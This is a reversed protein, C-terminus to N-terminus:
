AFVFFIGPKKNKNILKKRKNAMKTITFCMWIYKTNWNIKHESWKVASEGWVCLLRTWMFTHWQQTRRRCWRIGGGFKTQSGFHRRDFRFAYRIYRRWRINFGIGYWWCRAAGVIQRATCRTVAATAATSRVFLGIISFILIRLFPFFLFFKLQFGFLLRSLYSECLCVCVCVCERRNFRIHSYNKKSNERAPPFVCQSLLPVIRWVIPWLLFSACCSYFRFCSFIIQICIRCQRDFQLQKRIHTGSDSMCLHIHNTQRCIFEIRDCFRYYFKLFPVSWATANSLIDNVVLGVCM